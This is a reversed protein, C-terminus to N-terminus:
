FSNGCLWWCALVLSSLEFGLWSFLLVEHLFLRVMFCAGCFSAGEKGFWSCNVLTELYIAFIEELTWIWAILICFSPPAIYILEKRLVHSM